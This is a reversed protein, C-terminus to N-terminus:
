LNLSPCRIHEVLVMAVALGVLLVKTSDFARIKASLDEFIGALILYGDAVKGRNREGLKSVILTAGEVELSQM